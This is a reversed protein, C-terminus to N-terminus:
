HHSTHSSKPCVSLCVSPPPKMLVGSPTRVVVVVVVVIVIVVDVVAIVIVNNVSFCGLRGMMSVIWSIVSSVIASSGVIVVLQGIFVSSSKFGSPIITWVMQDLDSVM